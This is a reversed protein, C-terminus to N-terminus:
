GKRKTDAQGFLYQLLDLRFICDLRWKGEVEISLGIGMGMGIGNGIYCAHLHWDIAFLIGIAM